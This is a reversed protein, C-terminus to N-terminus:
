NGENNEGGLGFVVKMPNIFYTNMIYSIKDIDNFEPHIDPIPEEREIKEILMGVTLDKDESFKKMKSPIVDLEAMKKSIQDVIKNYGNVDGSVRRKEKEIDLECLTKIIEQQSLTESPYYKLFKKYKKELKIYDRSTYGEGWFDIIEEKVIGDEVSIYQAEKGLDVRSDLSNKERRERTLLGKFYEGLFNSGDTKILCDNFLAEDFYVDLNLLLHKFAAATDGEYVLLLREYRERVCNKCIIMKNTKKQTNWESSSRYYDKAVKEEKCIPCRSREIM